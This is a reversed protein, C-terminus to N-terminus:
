PQHERAEKQTKKAQRTRDDQEYPSFYYTAQRGEATERKLVFWEM